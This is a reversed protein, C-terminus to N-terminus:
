KWQERLSNTVYGSYSGRKLGKSAMFTAHKDFVEEVESDSDANVTFVVNPLPKGNDDVLLLKGEILQRELKDVREPNKKCCAYQCGNMNSVSREM